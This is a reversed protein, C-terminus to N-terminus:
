THTAIIGGIVLLASTILASSLWIHALSWPFSKPIDRRIQAFTRVNPLTEWDVALTEKLRSLEAAPYYEAYARLVVRGSRNLFLLWTAPIGGIRSGVASVEVVRAIASRPCSASRGLYGTRRVDSSRVRISTQAFFDARALLVIIVLTALGAVYWLGSTLGAHFQRAVGVATFPLFALAFRLRKRDAAVSPRPRFVVEADNAAAVDLM